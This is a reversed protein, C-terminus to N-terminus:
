KPPEQETHGAADAGTHAPKAQSDERAEAREDRASLGPETATDTITGEDPADSVQSMARDLEEHAFNIAGVVTRGGGEWAKRLSRWVQRLSGFPYCSASWLLVSADDETAGPHVRKVVDFWTASM